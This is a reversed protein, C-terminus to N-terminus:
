NTIYMTCGPTSTLYILAIPTDKPFVRTKETCNPNRQTFKL